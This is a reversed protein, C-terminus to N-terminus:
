GCDAGPSPKPCPKRCRRRPWRRTSSSRKGRRCAAGDNARTADTTRKAMSTMGTQPGAPLSRVSSRGRVRGEEWVRRGPGEWWARGSFPVATRAPLRPLCEPAKPAHWKTLPAPGFLRGSALPLHGHPKSPCLSCRLALTRHAVACPSLCVGHAGCAQAAGGASAAELRRDAM